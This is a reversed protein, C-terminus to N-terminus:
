CLITNRYPICFRRRGLTGKHFFSCHVISSFSGETRYHFEFLLVLFHLFYLRVGTIWKSLFSFFSIFFRFFLFLFLPSHYSPLFVSCKTSRRSLQDMTPELQHPVVQLVEQSAVLVQLVVQLVALAM